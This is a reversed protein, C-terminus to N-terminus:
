FIFCDILSLTIKGGDGPRSEREKKWKKTALGVSRSCWNSLFRM